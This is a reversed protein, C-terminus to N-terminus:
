GVRYLAGLLCPAAAPLHSLLLPHVASVMVVPLLGWKKRQTANERIARATTGGILCLAFSPCKHRLYHPKKKRGQMQASTVCLFVAMKCALVSVWRGNNHLPHVFSIQCFCICAALWSRGAAQM